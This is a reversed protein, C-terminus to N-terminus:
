WYNWKSNKSNPDFNYEDYDGGRKMINRVEQKMKSRFPKNCFDRVYWAPIMNMNIYGDAHYKALHKKLDKGIRPVDQWLGSRWRYGRSLYKEICTYNHTIWTSPKEGRKRRYTRSM